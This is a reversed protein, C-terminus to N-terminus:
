STCFGLLDSVLCVFVFVCVCCMINYGSMALRNLALCNGEGVTEQSRHLGVQHKTFEQTGEQAKHDVDLGPHPQFVPITPLHHNLCTTTSYFPLNGLKSPKPYLPELPTESTEEHCPPNSIHTQGQKQFAKSLEFAEFIRLLQSLNPLIELNQGSPEMVHTPSWNWLNWVLTAPATVPLMPHWRATPSVVQSEIWICSQECAQPQCIFCDIYIYLNLLLIPWFFCVFVHLCRTYIGSMELYKNVINTWGNQPVTVTKTPKDKRGSDSLVLRWTSPSTRPILTPDWSSPNEPCPPPKLLKKIQM